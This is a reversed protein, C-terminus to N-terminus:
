LFTDYNCEPVLWVTIERGYSSSSMESTPYIALLPQNQWEVNSHTWRSELTPKRKAVIKVSFTSLSALQTSEVTSHRDQL